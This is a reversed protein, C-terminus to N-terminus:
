VYHLAIANKRLEAPKKLLFKDIDSNKVVAIGNTDKRAMLAPLHQASNGPLIQLTHKNTQTQSWLNQQTKYHGDLELLHLYALDKNKETEGDEFTPVILLDADKSQALKKAEVYAARNDATIKLPFIIKPVM